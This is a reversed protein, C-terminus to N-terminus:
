IFDKVKIMELVLLLRILPLDFLANFTDFHYSKFCKAIRYKVSNPHVGLLNSVNNVNRLILYLRLTDLFSEEIDFNIDVSNIKFINETYSQPSHLIMNLLPLEDIVFIGEMFLLPIVSIRLMEIKRYVEEAFYSESSFIFLKPNIRDIVEFYDNFVEGKNDIEEVNKSILFITYNYYNNEEVVIYNSRIFENHKEISDKQVFGIYYIKDDVLELQNKGNAIKKGTFNDLEKVVIPAIKHFVKLKPNTIDSSNIFTGFFVNEGYYLMSFSDENIHVSIPINPKSNNKHINPNIKSLLISVQNKEVGSYYIDNAVMVIPLDLCKNLQNSFKSINKSTHLEYFTYLIDTFCSDNDLKSLATNFLSFESIIDSWRVDSSIYLIPLNHENGLEIIEEDIVDNLNPGPMIGIGACKNRILAKILNIRNEKDNRCNWFSTFVFLSPVLFKEVMPYPTELIDIKKIVNLIGNYGAVIYSNQLSPLKLLDGM